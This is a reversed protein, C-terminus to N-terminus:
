LCKMLEAPDMDSFKDLLRDYTSLAQLLNNDSLYGKLMSIFNLEAMKMTPFFKLRDVIDDNRHIEEGNIIVKFSMTFFRLQDNKSPYLPNENVLKLNSFMKNEKEFPDILDVSTHLKEIQIKVPEICKFESHSHKRGMVSYNGVFSIYLDMTTKYPNNKFYIGIDKQSIYKQM